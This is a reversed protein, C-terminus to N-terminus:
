VNGGNEIDNIVSLTEDWDYCRFYDKEPNSDVNWPYEKGFLIKYPANSSVINTLSDDIFIGNSMDVCSKDVHKELDVGIFETDRPLLTNVWEKKLKLNPLYGHSVVCLEHEKWLERLAQFAGSM